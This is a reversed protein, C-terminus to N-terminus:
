GLRGSIYQIGPEPDKGSKAKVLEQCTVLQYGKKILKPVIKEVAKATSEYIEHMLIIDGDQVYNLVNKEVSKADRSRWDETDISWYYLAMNEAKCEKRIKTTTMGGPSRFATPYQGCIKYIANSAKKIDSATVNEGYHKHNWTHNGLEMGLEVKRKVNDPLVSANYGVMFFTAKAKYKELTDLIQNSAKNFGPGDDFTLAVMPKDPDIESSISFNEIILTTSVKSWSSYVKDENHMIYYRMRISYSADEVLNKITVSKKKGSVKQVDASKFEGDTGKEYQIQFQKANKVAKWEVKLNNNDLVEMKSIDIVSPKTFADILIKDSESKENKDDTIYSSVAFQYETAAKLSSVTYTSIKKNTIEGLKKFEDSDKKRQYILYGSSKEPKKWKLTVSKDSIKSLELESVSEVRGGFFSVATFILLGVVLVALLVPLPNIRSRRRNRNRRWRRRTNYYSKGYNNFM